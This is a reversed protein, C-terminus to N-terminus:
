PGATRECDYNVPIRTGGDVMEFDSVALGGLDGAELLGAWKATTNSDSRATLAINGGDSLIMGYKQMAKAVVRAGPKLATVNYGAKLRLRAGYPVTDASPTGPGVGSHTAPRVMEGKRIRDNPLIFRIAHEIAGAKVEDADFLLDSLPLGAADASTCQDGRGYAAGSGSWYDRGLDWVALCGGTFTGGTALGGSINARWMEYLRRGHLVVLHCDGDGSCAYNREAEIRGGTPVPVAMHDCDPEYFDGNPEFTRMPTGEDAHLLEISFDVRIKGTGWGGRAQLGRMVQDNERDLAAGSIDRYWPTNTTFLRGNASPTGPQGGSTGGTGGPPGPMGTGGSGGGTGGPQGPRPEDVTDLTATCSAAALALALLARSERRNAGQNPQGNKTM